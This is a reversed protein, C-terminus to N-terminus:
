IPASSVRIYYDLVRIPVVTKTLVFLSFYYEREKKREHKFCEQWFRKFM